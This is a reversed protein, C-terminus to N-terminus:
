QLAAQASLLRETRDDDDTMSIYILLQVRYLVPLNVSPLLAISPERALLKKEQLAAAIDLMISQLQSPDDVWEQIRSM